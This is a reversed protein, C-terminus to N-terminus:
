CHLTDPGVGSRSFELTCKSLIEPIMFITVNSFNQVLVNYLQTPPLLVWCSVGMVNAPSSDM